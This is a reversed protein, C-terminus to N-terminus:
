GPMSLNLPSTRRPLDSCTPLVRRADWGSTLGDVPLLPEDIVGDGGLYRDISEAAKRGAAIAKIASRSSDGRHTTLQDVLVNFFNGTDEERVCSVFDESIGGLAADGGGFVGERSTGLTERDVKINGQATLDIGEKQLFRARQGVFTTGMALFAADFGDKLPEDINTAPANLEFKVGAQRIEELLDYM